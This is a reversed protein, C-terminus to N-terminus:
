NVILHYWEKRVLLICCTLTLEVSESARVVVVPPAWPQTLEGIRRVSYVFLQTLM